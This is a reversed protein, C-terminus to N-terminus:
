EKGMFLDMANQYVLRDVYERDYNDYLYRIGTEMEPPRHDIRHADSGIFDALRHEVMALARARTSEKSEQYVSYVNIQTYAGLEKYEKIDRVSLNRYREVHALVPVYGEALYREVVERAKEPLVSPHFEVLAYRTGDYTLYQRSKLKEMIRDLPESDSEIEMGLKLVIPIGARKVRQRLQDFYTKLDEPFEDIFAWSHSTCFVVEAGQEVEMRLMEMSMDMDRAGDDYFPIMHSHVDVYKM